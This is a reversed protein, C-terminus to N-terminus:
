SLERDVCIGYISTCPHAIQKRRPGYKFNKQGKLGCKYAFWM